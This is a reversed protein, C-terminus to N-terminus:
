LQREVTRAARRPEKRRADSLPAERQDRAIPLADGGTDESRMPLGPAPAYSVAGFAPAHPQPFDSLGGGQGGGTNVVTQTRADVYVYRVEVQQKGGTRLKHFAEALAATTRATQNLMRNHDALASRDDARATHRAQTMASGHLGALQLLLMTELSSRPQMDAVFALAAEAGRVSAVATAEDTPKPGFGANLASMLLFDAARPDNAGLAETLQATFGNADNHPAGVMLSGSWGAKLHPFASQAEARRERENIIRSAAAKGAEKERDDPDPKGEQKALDKRPAKARAM